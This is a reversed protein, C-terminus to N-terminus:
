SVRIADQEVFSRARPRLGRETVLDVKGKLLDELLLKVDMYQEFTTPAGFDVLIDIDSDPTAEDRAVSGFLSLSRVGLRRLEALHAKLLGLAENKGM